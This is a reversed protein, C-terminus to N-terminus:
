GTLPPFYTFPVEEVFTGDPCTFDVDTVEITRMGQEDIRYTVVYHVVLGASPGAVSGARPTLSFEGELDASSPASPTLTLFARSRSSGSLDYVWDPDGLHPITPDYDPDTKDYGYWHSFQVAPSLVARISLRERHPNQVLDLAVYFLAAHFEVTPACVNDGYITVGHDTLVGFEREPPAAAARAVPLLLAALVTAVVITGKTRGGSGVM